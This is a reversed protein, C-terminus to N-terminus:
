SIDIDLDDRKALIEFQKQSLKPNHSLSINYFKNDKVSVEGENWVPCEYLRDNLENSGLRKILKSIAMEVM